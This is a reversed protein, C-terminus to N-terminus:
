FCNSSPRPPSTLLVAQDSKILTPMHQEIQVFLNLLVHFLVCLEPVCKALPNVHKQKDETTWQESREDRFYHHHSHNYWFRPLSCSFPAMGSRSVQCARGETCVCGVYMTVCEQIRPCVHWMHMRVCLATDWFYSTRGM